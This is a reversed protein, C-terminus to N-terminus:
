LRVGMLYDIAEQADSDECEMNFAKPMMEQSSSYDDSNEEEQNYIMYLLQVYYDIM